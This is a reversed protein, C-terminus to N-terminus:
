TPAAYKLSRRLAAAVANKARAMDSVPMVGSRTM